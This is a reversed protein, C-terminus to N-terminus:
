KAFTREPLTHHIEFVTENMGTCESQYTISGQSLSAHERRAYTENKQQITATRLTGSVGRWSQRVSSLEKLAKLLIKIDM